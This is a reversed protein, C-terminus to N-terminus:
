SAGEMREAIELLKMVTNWNRGTGATALVKEVAAISMKPRALGNAFYIYLERAGIRMEEPHAPIALAKRRAEDSPDGALFSVLYKAPDIDTRDAFPNSAIV